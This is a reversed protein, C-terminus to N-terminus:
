PEKPMYGINLCLFCHPICYQPCLLLYRMIHHVTCCKYMCVFLGVFMRIPNLKSSDGACVYVLVGAGRGGLTQWNYIRLLHCFYLIQSESAGSDLVLPGVPRANLMAKHLM